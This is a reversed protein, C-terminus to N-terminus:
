ETENKKSQGTRYLPSVVPTYVVQFRLVNIKSLVYGMAIGVISLHISSGNKVIELVTCWVVALCSM